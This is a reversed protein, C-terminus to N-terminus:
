VENDLDIRISTEACEQVTKRLYRLDHVEVCNVKNVHRYCLLVHVNYDFMHIVMAEETMLLPYM